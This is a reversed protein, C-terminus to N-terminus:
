TGSPRIPTARGYVSKAANNAPTNASANTAATSAAPTAAKGVSGTGITTNMPISGVFTSGTVTGAGATAPTVPSGGVLRDNLRASRLTDIRQDLKSLIGKVQNFTRQSTSM